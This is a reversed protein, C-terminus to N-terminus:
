FDRHVISDHHKTQGQFTGLAQMKQWICNCDAGRSPQRWWQRVNPYRPGKHNKRCRRPIDDECRRRRCNVHLQLLLLQWLGLCPMYSRSVIRYHSAPEQWLEPFINQSFASKEMGAEVAIVLIDADEYYVKLRRPRTEPQSGARRNQSTSSSLTEAALMTRKWPPAADSLLVSPHRELHVGGDKIAASM